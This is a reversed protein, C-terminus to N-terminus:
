PVCVTDSWSHCLLCVVPIYQHQVFRVALLYGHEEEGKKNIEKKLRSCFVILVVASCM